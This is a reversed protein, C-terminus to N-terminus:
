GAGEWGLAWGGRRQGLEARKLDSQVLSPPRAYVARSAEKWFPVLLLQCVSCDGDTQNRFTDQGPGQSASKPCRDQCEAEPNFESHISPIWSGVAVSGHFLSWHLSCLRAWLDPQVVAPRSADQRRSCLSAPQVSAQCSPGQSDSPVM